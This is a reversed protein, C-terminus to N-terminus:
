EDEPRDPAPTTPHMPPLAKLTRILKEATADDREYPDNLDRETPEPETKKRPPNPLSKLASRYKEVLDRAARACAECLNLQEAEPEGGPM